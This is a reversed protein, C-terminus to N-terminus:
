VKRAFSPRRVICVFTGVYKLTGLQGVSAGYFEMIHPMRFRAQFKPWIEPRLGNGIAIRLHHDREHPHEATNLLYRCLEGIYQFVTPKYRHCDDWFEGASFKSRVVLSGGSLFCPGLAAIGGSAHYVPLVDYMRDDPKANVAGQFASMIHLLRM